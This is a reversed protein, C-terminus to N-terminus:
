AKYNSYSGCNRGSGKEVSLVTPSFSQGPTLLEAISVSGYGNRCSTLVSNLAEQAGRMSFRLDRGNRTYVNIQCGGCSKQNSPQSQIVMGNGDANYTSLASTCDSLTVKNAPGCNPAAVSTASVSYTLIAFLVLSKIFTLM